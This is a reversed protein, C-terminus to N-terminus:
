AAPKFRSPLPIHLLMLALSLGIYPLWADGQGNSLIGNVFGLVGIGESLAFVVIHGAIFRGRQQPGDLGLAGTTFGGLLLRRMLFSLAMASVAILAIIQGMASPASQSPAFTMSSLMVAYLVLSSCLAGWIIFVVLQVQKM